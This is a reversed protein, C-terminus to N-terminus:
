GRYRMSWVLGFTMSERRIIGWGWGEREGVVGDGGRPAGEGLGGGEWRWRATWRRNAVVGDEARGGAPSAAADSDSAL